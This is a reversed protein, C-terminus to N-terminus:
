TDAEDTWKARTDERQGTSEYTDALGRLLRATTPWRGRIISADSRYVQALDREQAGGEFLGRSTVGRLNFKGTRFGSRIYEPSPAIELVDRVAECPWAGDSGVPANALIEGIKYDGIDANGRDKCLRRVETVWSNLNERDVTADDTEGPLGRLKSLVEFSFSIQADRDSDSVADNHEGNESPFALSVLDAFLSAEQLAEEALALNPRREMIAYILPIELRAIVGRPVDASKDLREFLKSFVFGLDRHMQDSGSQLDQPIQEVTRVILEDPVQKNWILQAATVSRNVDLLSEIASAFADMDGGADEVYVWNIRRWYADQISQDEAELRTLRYKLEMSNASAYIAAITEPTVGGTSKLDDLARDLVEWGSRRCHESFYATAFYLRAQDDSRICELALRYVKDDDIGNVLTWGLSHPANVADVLRLLADTGGADFVAQAARQQAGSIRARREPLDETREGEPLDIWDSEFLWANAEVPDSSQLADYAASLADLDAAEMAWKADPFSRHHHLVSRIAARLAEVGSDQKIVDARESLLRLAAKRSNDSLNGLIDVLGMWRDADADVNDLLLRTMERLYHQLEGITVRSFGGQAWPRWLPPERLMMGRSSFIGIATSWAVNGFRHLLMSFSELRGDDTAETFRLMPCFLGLLSSSPRNAVAGGPDIEALRALLTAAESFYDESWALAELGWLLGVHPSGGFAPDKDQEFLALVQHESDNLTLEIAELLADPAAEALTPLHHNLTAWTRWDSDRGLVKFVVRHPIFRADETNAMQEPRTAMLALTQAVGSRLTDSYRPVKGKFGAMYREGVPLDFAPSRESLIKLALEEFKEVDGATLYPALLHWAEEHSVYRWRQGLKTVPSDAMNLLPTLEREVEEYSKGALASVAARDAERDRSWQGVLTLAALCRSPNPSAWAPLPAGAEDLLHRRIIPLRRATRRSLSRAETESLSMSVLAEVTQDLGLRPLSLGLGQPEQSSDLPIVVHHGNRIAVQSSPDGEFDRILVMPTRQGVLRRWADPTEVVVARALCTPGVHDDSSLASAALFGIAEDRTDGRVYYSHPDPSGTWLRPLRM